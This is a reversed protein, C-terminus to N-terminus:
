IWFDPDEPDKEAVKGDNQEALKVASPAIQKVRALESELRANEAKLAKMEESDQAAPQEAPQEETTAPPQEQTDAKPAEDKNPEETPTPAAPAPNGADPQQDAADAPVYKVGDVMISKTKVLEEKNEPIVSKATLSLAVIQRFLNTWESKADNFAKIAAMEKDESSMSDAYLINSLVRGLIWTVDFLKHNLQEQETYGEVTTLPAEIEVSKAGDPKDEKRKFMTAFFSKFQGFLSENGSNIADRVMRDIEQTQELGEAVNQPNEFKNGYENDLALPPVAEETGSDSVAKSLVSYAAEKQEDTMFKVDEPRNSNLINISAFALEADVEGEVNKYPFLRAAKGDIEGVFAFSDNPMKEKDEISLVKAMQKGGKANEELVKNIHDLLCKKNMPRDVVSIEVLEIDELVVVGDARKYQSNIIYGISFGKYVKKIIKEQVDKDIIAAEIWLGDEEMIMVKCVGAGGLFPNHMQRINGFDAYSKLSRNIAKLPVVEKGSDINAQSAWGYVLLDGDKNKAFSQVKCYMTRLNKETIPNM